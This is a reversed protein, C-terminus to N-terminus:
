KLKFENPHKFESLAGELSAKFWDDIRQKAEPDDSRMDRELAVVDSTWTVEDVQKTYPCKNM